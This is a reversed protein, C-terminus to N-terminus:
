IERREGERESPLHSDVTTGRYHGGEVEGREKERERERERKEWMEVIDM